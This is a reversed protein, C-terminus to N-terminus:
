LTMSWRPRPPSSSASGWISTPLITRSLRTLRSRFRVRPHGLWEFHEAMQTEYRRGILLRKGIRVRRIEAIGTFAARMADLLAERDADPLDAPPRFMVVHAIM